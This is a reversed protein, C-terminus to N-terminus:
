GQFEMPVVVYKNCKDAWSQFGTEDVNFFFEPPIEARELYRDLRDYHDQIVSLPVVARTQEIPRGICIKMMGSAEIIHHLTNLSVSIQFKKYIWNCLSPIEPSDQKSM